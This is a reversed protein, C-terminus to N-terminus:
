QKNGVEQPGRGGTAVQAEQHGSIFQGYWIESLLCAIWWPPILKGHSALEHRGNLKLYKALKDEAMEIVHRVGSNFADRKIVESLQAVTIEVGAEIGKTYYEVQKKAEAEKDPEQAETREQVSKVLTKLERKERENPM